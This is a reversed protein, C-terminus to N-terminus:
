TFEEYIQLMKSVSKRAAHEISVFNRYAKQEVPLAFDAVTCLRSLLNTM